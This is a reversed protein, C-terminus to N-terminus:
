IVIQKMCCYREAPWAPIGRPRAETEVECNQMTFVLLSYAKSFAVLSRHAARNSVDQKVTRDRQVLSREHFGQPLAV